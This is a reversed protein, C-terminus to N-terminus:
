SENQQGAARKEIIQKGLKSTYKVLRGTDSNRILQVRNEMKYYLIM